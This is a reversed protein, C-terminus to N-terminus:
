FHSVKLTFISNMAVM